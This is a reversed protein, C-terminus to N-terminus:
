DWWSKSKDRLTNYVYERDELEKRSAERYVEDVKEEGFGDKYKTELTYIGREGKKPVFVSEPEKGEPFEIYDDEILRELVVIVDQLEYLTSLRDKEVLYTQEKRYHKEMAKLKKLLIVELYHNDWQADNFIIPFWFILNKVGRVICSWTSKISM